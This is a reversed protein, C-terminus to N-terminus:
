HLLSHSDWPVVMDEREILHEFDRESELVREVYTKRKRVSQWVQQQVHGVGVLLSACTNGTPEFTM